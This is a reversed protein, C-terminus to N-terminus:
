YGKQLDQMWKYKMLKPNKKVWTKRDRIFDICRWCTVAKINKTQRPKNLNLGCAMRIGILGSKYHIKKEKM